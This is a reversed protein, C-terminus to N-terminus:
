VSNSPAMLSLVNPVSASAESLSRTENCLAVIPCVPSTTMMTSLCSMSRLRSSWSELELLSDSGGTKSRSTTEPSESEAILLSRESLQVATEASLVSILNYTVKLAGNSIELPRWGSLSLILAIFPDLNVPCLNSGSEAKVISSGLCIDLILASNKWCRDFTKKMMPTDVLPVDNMSEWTISPVRM